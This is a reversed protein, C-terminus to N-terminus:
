RSPLELSTSSDQSFETQSSGTRLKESELHQIKIERLRQKHKEDAAEILVDFVEEVKKREGIERVLIGLTLDPAMMVALGSLKLIFRKHEEENERQIREIIIQYVVKLEETTQDRRYQVRYGYDELIQFRRLLEEREPDKGEM